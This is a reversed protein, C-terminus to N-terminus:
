VIVKATPHSMSDNWSSPVMIVSPRENRLDFAPIHSSAQSAQHCSCGCTHKEQVGMEYPTLARHTGRYTNIQYLAANKHSVTSYPQLERKPDVQDDPMKEFTSSQYASFGEPADMKKSSIPEYSDPTYGYTGQNDIGKDQTGVPYYYVEHGGNEYMPVATYVNLIHGEPMEGVSVDTPYVQDPVQTEIIGISKMGYPSIGNTTPREPISTDVFSTKKQQDIQTTTMAVTNNNDPVVVSYGNMHGNSQNQLRLREEERCGSVEDVAIPELKPCVSTIDHLSYM